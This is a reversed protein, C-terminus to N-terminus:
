LFCDVGAQHIDLKVVNALPRAIFVMFNVIAGEPAAGAHDQLDLRDDLADFCHLLRGVGAVQDHERWPASRQVLFGHLLQGGFGPQKEKAASVFSEVLANKINQLGVLNRYSIIDEIAAFGRRHHDDVGADAKYGSDESVFFAVLVVREGAAVAQQLKGLVGARAFKPAVCHGFDEHAAVVFLDGTPPAFLAVEAGAVSTGIQQILINWFLIVLSWAGIVLCIGLELDLHGFRSLKTETMQNKTIQAQKTM